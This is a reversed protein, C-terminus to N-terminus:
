GDDIRRVSEGMWVVWSGRVVVVEELKVVAAVAVLRWM